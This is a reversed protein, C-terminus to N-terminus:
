HTVMSKQMVYGEEEDSLVIVVGASAEAIDVGVNGRDSKQIYIYIYIYLFFAPGKFDIIILLFELM